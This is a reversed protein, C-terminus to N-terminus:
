VSSVKCSWHRRRVAAPSSRSSARKLLDDATDQEVESYCQQTKWYLLKELLPPPAVDDIGVSFGRDGIYRASLKALRNMCIAAAAASYQSHLVQLVSAHESPNRSLKQTRVATPQKDLLKFTSHLMYCCTCGLLSIRQRKAAERLLVVHHQSLLGGNSLKNANDHM